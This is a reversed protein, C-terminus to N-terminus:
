LISGVLGLSQDLIVLQSAVLYSGRRSSNGSNGRGGVEDEEKPIGVYSAM